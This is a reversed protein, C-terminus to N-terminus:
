NLLEALNIKMCLKQQKQLPVWFTTVLLLSVPIATVVIFSQIAEIGGESIMLLVIAVAGM